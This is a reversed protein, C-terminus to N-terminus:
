PPRHRDCLAYFQEKDTLRDLLEGSIYNCKVNAPFQDKLHAAMKVYSDGCGIVLVTKDECEAAVNRINQLFVAEDENELCPRYDIIASYACPFCLFKGYAISKVGYAEHFARAVSYVNIDGGFLLPQFNCDPM